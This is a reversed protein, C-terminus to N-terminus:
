AGFQFMERRHDIRFPQGKTRIATHLAVWPLVKDRPANSLGEKATNGFVFFEIWRAFGGVPYDTSTDPELRLTRPLAVDLTRWFSRAGAPSLAGCYLCRAVSFVWLSYEQVARSAVCVDHKGSVMYVVGPWSIHMKKQRSFDLIAAKHGPQRRPDTSNADLSPDAKPDITWPKLGMALRFEVNIWPGRGNDKERIWATPADILANQYQTLRIILDEEHLGGDCRDMQLERNNDASATPQLSAPSKNQLILDDGECIVQCKTLRLYRYAGKPYKRQLYTASKEFEVNVKDLSDKLRFRLADFKADDKLSPDITICIDSEYTEWDIRKVAQHNAWANVSDRSTPPSVDFLISPARSWDLQTGDALRLVAMLYPILVGSQRYGPNFKSKLLEDAETISISHSYAVFGAINPILSADGDASAFLRLKKTGPFGNLAIHYAIAGHHRRIFEGVMLRHEMRTLDDIANPLGSWRSALDTGLIAILRGDEMSQVEERFEEWIQHWSSTNRVLYNRNSIDSVLEKFGKADLHMGLDHLTVAAVLVAADAESFLPSDGDDFTARFTRAPILRNADGLVDQIHQLGHNTYFPFFHMTPRCVPEVSCLFDRVGVSLRGTGLKDAIHRPLAIFQKSM